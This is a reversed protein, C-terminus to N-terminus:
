LGGTASFQLFNSGNSVTRLLQDTIGQALDYQSIVSGQVTVNVVPTGGYNSLDKQGGLGNNGATAQNIINGSATILDASNLVSPDSTGGGNPNPPTYVPLSNGRLKSDYANLAALANVWGDAAVKGPSSLDKPDFAAAGTVQAIYAVVASDSMGWKKALTEVESSSITQDALVGLIDSYKSSAANLATQAQINQILQDFQNQAEVNGQKMLNLRAAELEIPDTSSSDTIGYAKLKNMETQVLLAQAAAKAQAAANLAQQAALLKADALAKAALDDQIKKLKAAAVAQDTLWKQSGFAKGSLPNNLDKQAASLQVTADTASNLNSVLGYTALAAGAVGLALAGAALNLGGTLFTEAIIALTEAAAMAKFAAAVKSIVSIFALVKSTAWLTGLVVAFNKILTMHTSIWEAFSIAKKVLTVVGDAATKLGAVLKDKNLDIWAQVKPIIQTNLQDIFSQVAPMLAYGLSKKAEDFGLKMREMQGALSDAAVTADGKVAASLENVIGTFDKSKILTESLPIGLRKLASFNGDYAKALAISVQGLDKGRGASINLALQQLKEAETVSHTATVLANLSPRLETDVVGLRLETAKVYEETSAILAENANTTNKLTNALIAASQQDAMALKVSDFGVKVAFAVSAAAAVAFSEKVKKGFDDFSKGAAKLDKQAAKTGKDSYESLIRAVVAGTAM